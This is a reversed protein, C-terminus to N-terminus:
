FREPKVVRIRTARDRHRLKLDPTIEFEVTAGIQLEGSITEGRCVFVDRPRDRLKAFGIGLDPLWKVVVGQAM